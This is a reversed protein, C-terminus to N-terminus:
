ARGLDGNHIDLQRKLLITGLAINGAPEYINLGHESAMDQWWRPQIQMIGISNGGDGIANVNYNSERRMVAFVIIPDIGVNSCTNITYEQLSQELPINYLKQPAETTPAETTPEETTPEETTQIETTQIETTPEETTPEEMTPPYFETPIPEAETVIPMTIVIDKECDRPEAFIFALFGIAIFIILIIITLIENKLILRKRRNM